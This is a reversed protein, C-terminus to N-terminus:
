ANWNEICDIGLNKLEDLIPDYLERHTPIHVGTLDIAGELLLYAGVAAPLSVTRSMASDGGPEGYAVLTSTIRRPQKETPYSVLFEHILVIMDKEGDKYPMTEDLLITLADAVSEAKEPIPQDGLLGLWAM